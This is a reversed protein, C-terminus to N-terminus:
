SSEPEPVLSCKHDGAIDVGKTLSYIATLMGVVFSIGGVAIVVGEGFVRMVPPPGSVIKCFVAAALLMAPVVFAMSWMIGIRFLGLLVMLAIRPNTLSQHKLLFDKWPQRGIIWMITFGVSGGVFAGFWPMSYAYRTVTFADLCEESNAPVWSAAKLTEIHQAFLLAFSIAAGGFCGAVCGVAAALSRPFRAKWPEFRYVVFWLYLLAFSISTSYALSGLIGQFVGLVFGFAHMHQATAPLSARAIDFRPQTFTLDFASLAARVTTDFILVTVATIVCGILIRHAVLLAPDLPTVDFVPSLLWYGEKPLIGVCSGRLRSISPPVRAEITAMAVTTSRADEPWGARALEERTFRRNPVKCTEVVMYQLVLLDPLRLKHDGDNPIAVGDLFITPRDGTKLVFEEIKYTRSRMRNRLNEKAMPPSIRRCLHSGWEAM